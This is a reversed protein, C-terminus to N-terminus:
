QRRSKIQNRLQAQQELIQQIRNLGGSQPAGTSQTQGAETINMPPPQSSASAQHKEINAVRANNAFDKLKDTTSEGGVDDRVQKDENSLGMDFISNIGFEIAKGIGKGINKRLDQAPKVAEGVAKSAGEITGGLSDFTSPQTQPSTANAPAATPAPTNFVNPSEQGSLGLLSFPLGTGKTKGLTDMINDIPGLPM